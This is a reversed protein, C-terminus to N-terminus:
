FLRPSDNISILYGFKKLGDLLEQIESDIKFKPIRLEKQAPSRVVLGYKLEVTVFTTVHDEIDKFSTHTFSYKWDNPAVPIPTELINGIKELLQVEKRPLLPPDIITVPTNDDWSTECSWGLNLKDATNLYPVLEELNNATQIGKNM